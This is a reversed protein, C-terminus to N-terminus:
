WTVEIHVALVCDPSVNIILECREFLRVPPVESEVVLTFHYAFGEAVSVPRQSSHM